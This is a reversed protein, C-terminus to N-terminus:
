EGVMANRVEEVEALPLPAVLRRRYTALTQLRDLEAEETTTIGSEHKKRILRGRRKNTQPWDDTIELYAQLSLPGEFGDPFYGHFSFPVGKRPWNAFFDLLQWELEDPLSYLRLVANDVRLMLEKARNPEIQSVLTEHESAVYDLYREAASVVLRVGDPSIVPIPMGRMMGADNDRNGSHTFAFANTFPSNCLAWLFELPLNERRPRVVNFRGTVAHGDRDILAKLRWPGRSVRAENLLVQAIHRATGHLPRRIVRPDLNMWMERPLEHIQIQRDFRVFGRVSGAFRRESYTQADEPLSEGKYALGQGVEAIDGLIKNKSCHLWVEELDPIRMDWAPAVFRSQGIIRDSSAGYRTCFLEVDHERVRRYPLNKASPRAVRRGILIASEMDSFRFVKDPFLCIEELEYQNVLLERLPTSNKHHLLGQPVVIGFVADSSLHPLTRGLMEATKNIYRLEVLKKNYWNKEQTRFNEFPPNALLITATEAQQRLVDGEFMDCTGLDWGDPNPIDTLTLSLRAIELAFADVDCGHIRRRLYQRRLSPTAKEPPLLETLLRMASVLFAAHGCAPEFVNRENRPLEEIWPRLRGVIYDVLYPPTSHTGLARRTAKSILTNEYVHALSETTALRLNSFRDIDDAVQELARLQKRTAVPIPPAAYHEAVATFVSEVDKIEISEFNPVEKDRLIKASVLWFVAKLLWGGQKESVAEWGLQSKLLSINRVILDELRHGIESEVLPMLGVDVFRLQFQSDFRGWTKARYVAGPALEDSHRKFFTPIQAEPIPAGQRQAADSGQKWCELGDSRCVLVLPAGIPRCSRVLGPIDDSADVVVICSSRADTPPHAFAALGVRQGEGFEFDARLM